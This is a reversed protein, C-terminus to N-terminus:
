RHVEEVRVGYQQPAQVANDDHLYGDTPHAEPADGGVRGTDPCDLPRTVEEHCQVVADVSRLEQDPVSVGPERGGEVGDECGLGDLYQARGNPGRPGIRVDLAPDASAASFGEVARQDDVFSVQSTNHGYVLCVEVGVAWM